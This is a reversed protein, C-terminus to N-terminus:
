EARVHAGFRTRYDAPTLALRRLFVRRLNQEDGFGALAAVQKLPIERSELLGCAAEFRISEVTKAPTHGIRDVYIRSFSRVSMGAQIALKEVRLDATLNNRIWAHLDSFSGDMRSQFQLPASFQAQGGSRKMFVVLRRAAEIAVRYGYDQEILALTLDIGATVGASTWIPGDQIFLSDPEVRVNPHEAQLQKAWQWHTTARRDELLGAAALIFAGACISGIRRARDHWGAIWEVLDPPVIPRGDRSGGGLLITDIARDEIDSLRVTIIPVGSSTLIPGGSLSAMITEYRTPAARTDECAQLAELPGVLDLLNVGDFALLVMRKRSIAIPSSLTPSPPMAAFTGSQFIGM